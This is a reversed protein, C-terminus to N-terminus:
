SLAYTHCINYYKVEEKAPFLKYVAKSTLKYKIAICRYIYDIWFMQNQEYKEKGYVSKGFENELIQDSDEENITTFLYLGNDMSEAVSSNMFRRIFILSSYTTKIVSKEFIKAQKQCLKIEISTLPKM